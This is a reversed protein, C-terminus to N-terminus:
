ESRLTCMVSGEGGERHGPDWMQTLCGQTCALDEPVCWVTGTLEM